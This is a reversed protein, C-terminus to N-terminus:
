ILDLVKLVNNVDVPSRDQTLGKMDKWPVIIDMPKGVNKINILNEGLILEKLNCLSNSSSFVKCFKNYEYTKKGTLAREHKKLSYFYWIAKGCQKWQYLKEECHAKGPIQFSSSCTFGKGCVKGTYPPYGTHTIVYRQLTKLWM